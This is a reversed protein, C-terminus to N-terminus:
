LKYTNKNIIFRNKIWKVIILSFLAGGGERRVKDSNERPPLNKGSNRGTHQDHRCKVVWRGGEGGQRNITVKLFFGTM